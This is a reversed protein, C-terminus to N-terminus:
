LLLSFPENPAVDGGSTKDIKLIYGGSVNPLENDTPTMKAIDIRDNDRKLKEMFVYTGVYDQNVELEVFKSRSSYRGMSRYMEYGIYHHM